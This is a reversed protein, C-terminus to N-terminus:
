EDRKGREMLEVVAERPDKNNHIIEYAMTIIPMEVQYKQALRYAPESAAVGEVVMNVKKIATDVSCGEGILIGAKRNRSYDGTCTLIIDGMGALGTLTEMRAGMKTGLRTIEVMGRTILAARTNNQFGMGESIGACLAIVNKLAGALEVGMVDDSTYVRFNNNMFTDQVKVAIDRDVSACVVATPFGKAIEIAYSPGSLVCVNMKPVEEFIVESILKCTDSDIGKSCSVIISEASVGRNELCLKLRQCTHRANQSPVAFVIIEADKVAMDFDTLCHVETPLLVGPMREKHGRELNLLEAEDAFPTWLITEHGNRGLLISLAIGMSGAGLITIKKAGQKEHVKKMAILKGLSSNKPIMIDSIMLDIREKEMIVLKIVNTELNKYRHPQGSSVM